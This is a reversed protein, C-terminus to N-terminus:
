CTDPNYRCGPFRDHLIPRIGESGPGAVVPQPSSTVPPQSLETVLSQPVPVAHPAPTEVVQPHVERPNAAHQARGLEDMRGALKKLEYRLDRITNSLSSVVVVIIIAFMLELFLLIAIM